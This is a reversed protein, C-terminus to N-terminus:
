RLVAGPAGSGWDHEKLSLLNGNSDFSTEVESQTSNDELITIATAPSGNSAWTTNVTRLLTGSTSSGQYVKHATEQASSNFTYVSQNAASDYPMQPYTITTNWNSGNQSRVFTWTSTVNWLGADNVKRTVNLITGDTCSIGDNTTGYTYQVYGGDPLTAKQLRGTVYGSNGPTAEYAFTYQLGNPYVLSSPLNATFSTESIGSCSFNTKINQSTLNLTTTQYSGDPAAVEYQISSSSKVIKLILHGASDTWDTESGNVSSSVYNGNTDKPTPYVQSGDPGVVETQTYSTVWMHFGSGDSAAANGTSVPNGNCSGTIQVTTIPFSRQTGDPAVWLFGSYTTTTGFGCTTSSQSYTTAGALAVTNWGWPLPGNGSSGYLNPQWVSGLLQSNVITWILSNYSVSYQFGLGRGNGSVIPMTLVSDLDYRNVTDVPSADFSGYMPFGTGPTQGYTATAFALTAALCLLKPRM